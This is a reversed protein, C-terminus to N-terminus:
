SRATLHSRLGGTGDRRLVKRAGRLTEQRVLGSVDLGSHAAAREFLAREEETLRVELRRNRKM